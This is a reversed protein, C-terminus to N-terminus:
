KRDREPRWAPDRELGGAETLFIAMCWNATQDTLLLSAVSSHEFLMRHLAHHHNAQTFREPMLLVFDQEVFYMSRAAFAVDHPYLRYCSTKGDQWWYASWSPPMPAVPARAEWVQPGYKQHHYYWWVHRGAFDDRAREAIRRALEAPTGCAPVLVDGGQHLQVISYANDRRTKELDIASFGWEEPPRLPSEYISPHLLPYIKVSFRGLRERVEPLERSRSLLEAFALAGLSPVWEDEAHPMGIFVYLPRSPDGLTLAHIEDEGRRGVAELKWEPRAEALARTAAAFERYTPKRPWYRGARVGPGMLNSVPVWKHFAGRNDWKENPEELDLDLGYVNGKRVLVPEGNMTSVALPTAGSGALTRQRYLGKRHGCWPVVDGVRFGRLAPDDAVVRISPIPEAVEAKLGAQIERTRPEPNKKRQLYLAFDKGAEEIAKIDYPDIPLRNPNELTLPTVQGGFASAFVALDMVVTEGADVWPRGDGALVVAAKGRADAPPAQVVTLREPWLTKLSQAAPAKEDQTQLYVQAVLAVLAPVM